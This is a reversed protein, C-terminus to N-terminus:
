LLWFTGFRSFNTRFSFTWFELSEFNGLALKQLNKQWGICDSLTLIWLESFFTSIHLFFFRFFFTLTFSQLLSCLHSWFLNVSSSTVSVVKWLVLFVFLLVLSSLDSDDLESDSMGFTPQLALFLLGSVSWDVLFIKKQSKTPPSLGTLGPFMGSNFVLETIPCCM